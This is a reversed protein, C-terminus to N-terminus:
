HAKFCDRATIMYGYDDPQLRTATPVQSYLVQDGGHVITDAEMMGSERLMLRKMANNPPTDPTRRARQKTEFAHRHVDGSTSSPLTLHMIPAHNQVAFCKAM